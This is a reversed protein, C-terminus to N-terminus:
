LPRHPLAVDVPHDAPARGSGLDPRLDPAVRKPRGPDRFVQPIAALEFDRLLHRIVLARPRRPEVISPLIANREVFDLSNDDSDLRTRRGDRGEM